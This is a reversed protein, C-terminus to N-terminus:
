DEEEEEEISFNLDEGEFVQSDMNEVKELALDRMLDYDDECKKVEEVTLEVKLWQTIVQNYIFTKGKRKM